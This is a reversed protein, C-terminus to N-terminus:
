AVQPTWFGFFYFNCREETVRWITEVGM